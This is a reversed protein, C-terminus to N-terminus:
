ERLHDELAALTHAYDEPHLHDKWVELHNPFEKEDYGLMQKTRPAYWVEDTLVNWDWLGDTTGRVALDVREESLRLAQGSVSIIQLLDAAEPPLRNLKRSIVEVLPVREVHGTATDVCGLLEILM